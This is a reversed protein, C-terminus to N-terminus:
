NKIINLKGGTKEIKDKAQKSIFNASIDIKDKLDGTGLIKLKIYKKSIIKKEKLLKLDFTNKFTDKLDEVLDEEDIRSKIKKAVNAIDNSIESWRQEDNM